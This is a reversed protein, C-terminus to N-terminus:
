LEAVIDDLNEILRGSEVVSTSWLTQFSGSQIFGKNDVLTGVEDAAVSSSFPAGELSEKVCIGEGITVELQPHIGKAKACPNNVVLHPVSFDSQKKHM